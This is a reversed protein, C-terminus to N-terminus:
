KNTTQISPLYDSTVKVGVGGLIVGVVFILGAGSAIAKLPLESFSFVHVENTIFALRARLYQLYNLDFWERSRELEVNCFKFQQHLKEEVKRMDEVFISKIIKVDCPLQSKIFTERRAEPNRSLGIKCRKLPSMLGHFGIAEILYIYGPEHDNRTTTMIM